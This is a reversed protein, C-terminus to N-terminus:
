GNSVDSKRQRGLGALVDWQRNAKRDICIASVLVQAPSVSGALMPDFSSLDEQERETRVERESTRESQQGQM